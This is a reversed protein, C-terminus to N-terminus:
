VNGEAEGEKRAKEQAAKRDARYNRNNLNSTKKFFYGRSM